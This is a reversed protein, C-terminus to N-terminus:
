FCFCHRSPGRMGNVVGRRRNDLKEKGGRARWFETWEREREEWEGDGDRLHEDRLRLKTLNPKCFTVPLRLSALDLKRGM